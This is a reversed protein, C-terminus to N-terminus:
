AIVYIQNQQIVYTLITQIENYSDIATGNEASPGGKILSDCFQTLQTSTMNYTSIANNDLGKFGLTGLDAQTLGKYDSSTLTSGPRAANAAMDFIKSLITNLNSLGNLTNVNANSKDLGSVIDAFLDGVKDASINISIGGHAKVLDAGSSDKLVKNFVVDRTVLSSFAPTNINGDASDLITTYASVMDYVSTLATSIKTSDSLDLGTKADMVSNFSSLYSSKNALDTYNGGKVASIAQYDALTPTAAYNTNSVAYDNMRVMSVISQLEDWTDVGTGSNGTAAIASKIATINNYNASNSAGVVGLSSLATVWESDTYTVATGVAQKMINEAYGALTSLEQVTDVATSSLSGISSALLDGTKLYNLGTGTGASGGADLGVNILDQPKIDQDTQKGTNVAVQSVDTNTARSGDAEQLIRGYSDVIDQLTTLSVAGTIKKDLASNLAMLGNTPNTTKWYTAQNIPVPASNSLNTNANIGFGAWDDLTPLPNATPNKTNTASTVYYTGTDDAFAQLRVAGLLGQLKSVTDVNAAGGANKIKTKFAGINSVNVGTTTNLGMLTNLGAIWEANNDTESYKAPVTGTGTGSGNVAELMVNYAAKAIVNIEDVTDVATDASLGVYDNLLKISESDTGVIAGINIYDTDLPDDSTGGSSKPSNVNTNTTTNVVGDAEALIRYYSNAMNQVNTSFSTASSTTLKDLASNLATLWANSTVPTTNNTSLASLVAGDDMDLTASIQTLASLAKVGADKYTTLTPATAGAGNTANAYDKLVQLAIAGKVLDNLKQVTSVAAGDGTADNTSDDIKQKVAAINGSNVGVIGLATLGSVWEADTIYLAPGGSVATTVGKAKLMVNEAAKAVANIEDVTDIATKQSIGDM